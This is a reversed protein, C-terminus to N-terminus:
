ALSPTFLRRAATRWARSSSRSDGVRLRQGAVVALFAALASILAPLAVVWWNVDVRPVTGLPVSSGGHRRSWLSDEEDNARGEADLCTMSLAATARM